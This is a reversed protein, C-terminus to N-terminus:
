RSLLLVKQARATNRSEACVKILANFTVTSTMEEKEFEAMMEEMLECGVKKARGVVEVIKGYTYHTHKYGEQSNAWQFFRWAVAADKRLEKLVNMVYPPKLATGVVELVKETEPGWQKLMMALQEPKPPRKLLEGSEKTVTTNTNMTTVLPDHVEEDPHQSQSEIKQLVSLDGFNALFAEAEKKKGITELARAVSARAQFSTGVGSESMAEYLSLVKETNGAKAHAGILLSFTVCNPKCKVEGLKDFLNTAADLKGAEVLHHMLVTYTYIDPRCGAKHMDKFVEMAELSCGERGLAAIYATYAVVNPRCGKEEMEKWIKRSGELNKALRYWHILATYTVVTPAIGEQRMEEVLNDMSDYMKAKGFKNIMGTYTYVNHCYDKQTTLWKFLKWAINRKLKKLVHCVTFPNWSVQLAELERITSPDWTKLLRQIKDSARIQDEKSGDTDVALITSSTVGDYHTVPQLSTLYRVNQFSIQSTSGRLVGAFDRNLVRNFQQSSATKHLFELGPAPNDSSSCFCREFRSFLSILGLSGPAKLCTETYTSLRQAQKMYFALGRDMRVVIEM